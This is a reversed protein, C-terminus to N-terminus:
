RIKAVTANMSYVTGMHTHAQQVRHDTVYAIAPDSTVAMIYSKSALRYIDCVDNYAIEDREGAAPKLM